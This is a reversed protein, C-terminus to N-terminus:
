RRARAGIRREPSFDQGTADSAAKRRASHRGSLAGFVIAPGITIGPGPYAGGMISQLDNGCASLGEIVSGDRRLLRGYEDGVLGTASGIDGPWLRIAYFPPTDLPGLSPNPGHSPDGNAREYVTTGRAFDTDVGTKGYSSMRALSDKLGEPDIGLKAALEEPTKGETLYGDALFSRIDAGGPRIMGLGYIKLARAHAVLYVPVHSGEKNVAYM